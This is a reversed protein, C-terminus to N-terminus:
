GEKGMEQDIGTSTQRRSYSNIRISSNYKWNHITFIIYVRAEKGKGDIPVCISAGDLGLTYLHQESCAGYSYAFGAKRVTM